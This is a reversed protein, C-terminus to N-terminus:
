FSNETTVPTHRSSQMCVKELQQLQQEISYSYREVEDFLKLVLTSAYTKDDVLHNEAPKMQTEILAISISTKINALHASINNLVDNNYKNPDTTTLIRVLQDIQVIFFQRQYCVCM